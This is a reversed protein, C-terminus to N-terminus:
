KHSGMFFLALTGPGSHSGIVPGIYGTRFERVRMRSRIQEIVYDCDEPCNAHCVYVLQNEPETVTKEMESVLADLSAKRGRAKSMPILHGGDDVHLVPKIGLMGGFFAAAASVRGGRKLHDLDDVTFWHCLHNRNDEVWQALAEISLGARQQQVANFVLLGEGGSAALSDVVLLKRDPYKERLDQAATVACSYSGSLGSSFCIYLLDNGAALIGEMFETYREINILATSSPAGAKLKEYFLRIDYESHDPNNLFTEGDITYETRIVAVGLEEIMEATLDANSDTMIKYASM